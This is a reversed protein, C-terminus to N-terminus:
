HLRAEGHGHHRGAKCVVFKQEFPNDLPKSLIGPGGTDVTLPPTENLNNSPTRFPQPAICHQEIVDRGNPTFFNALLITLCM